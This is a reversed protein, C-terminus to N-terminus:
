ASIGAQVQSTAHLPSSVVSVGIMSDRSVLAALDAESMGDTGPPRLPLGLYRLDATSDHVHVTTNEPLATGFEALVL